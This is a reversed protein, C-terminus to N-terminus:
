FKPCYVKNRGFMKKGRSDTLMFNFTLMSFFYYDKVSAGGRQSGTPLQVPETQGLFENMRNGLNAALAGNAANLDDYNVYNTSIDDLYDTFTRRVIVEFGINMTESLIIKAGGGFPISVNYLSYKEGFGPMGQGETGLPQLRFESGRYVTKPDFRFGALGATLYPSFISSGPEPDFGFIYFEGMVALEVLSSKFSLNRIQQWDITSNADNGKINGFSFSARAGLNRSFLKRGSLQLALGSQTTLNKGFSPGNLDGWYTSFGVGVGFESYQANNKNSLFLSFLIALTVPLINKMKKIKFISKM